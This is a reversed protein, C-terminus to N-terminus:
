QPCAFPLPPNIITLPPNFEGVDFAELATMEITGDTGTAKAKARFKSSQGGDTMVSIGSQAIAHILGGTQGGFGPAGAQSANANVTIPASTDHFQINCAEVDVTGGIGDTNNYGHATIDKRAMFKQGDNVAVDDTVRVEVTGGKGAPGDDAEVGIIRQADIDNKSKVVVKGGTRATALVRQLQLGVGFTNKNARVRITGGTGDISGNGNLENDGYILVTDGNLRIRGGNRGAGQSKVTVNDRLEVAVPVADGPSNPDPGVQVEGGDAMAGTAIVNAALKRKVVIIPTMGQGKSFLSIKGARATSDTGTARTILGDGADIRISSGATMTIDGGRDLGNAQVRQTVLVSTEADVTVSGGVGAVVSTNTSTIEGRIEIDKGVLVVDGADNVIQGELKLDPPTVSGDPQVTIRIERGMGEFRVVSTNPGTALKKALLHIKRNSEAALQGDLTDLTVSSHETLDYTCTCVSGVCQNGPGDCADNPCVVREDIV